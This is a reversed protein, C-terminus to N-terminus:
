FRQGGRTYFRIECAEGIHKALTKCMYSLEESNENTNVFKTLSRAHPMVSSLLANYKSCENTVFFINSCYFLTILWNGCVNCINQGTHENEM